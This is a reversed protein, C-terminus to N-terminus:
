NIIEIGSEKLAELSSKSIKITIKEEEEKTEEQPKIRLEGDLCIPEKHNNRKAKVSFCSISNYVCCFAYYLINGADINGADINRADINRADINEADINEADINEADINWANIDRANIDRADINGADINGADINRADINGADINRADINGANVKISASISISCEFRVDGQITLEGDKIDKEVQEQTTYIKM